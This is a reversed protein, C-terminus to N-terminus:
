TKPTAKEPTARSMEVRDFAQFVDEALVKAYRQTTSIDAHCLMKALIEISVGKSLMQTAFTHRAMHATLPKKIGAALGLVKLYLNYKQNSYKPLEGGYKDWVAKAQPLLKIYYDGWTKVRAGRVLLDEGVDVNYMDVYSLGTYCGFVFLDRVRNLTYDETSLAEIKGVLGSAVDQLGTNLVSIYSRGVGIQAAFDSDNQVKKEKKLFDILTGIRQKGTTKM